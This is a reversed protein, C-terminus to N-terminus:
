IFLRTLSLKTMQTNTRVRIKKDKKNKQVSNGLIEKSLHFKKYFKFNEKFELCQLKKGKDNKRM